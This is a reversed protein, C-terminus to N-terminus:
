PSPVVSDNSAHPKRADYEDTSVSRLYTSFCAGIGGFVMLSVGAAHVPLRNNGTCAEEICIAGGIIAVLASLLFAGRYKNSDALLLPLCSQNQLKRARILRRGLEYDGENPRMDCEFATIAHHDQGSVALFEDDESAANISRDEPMASSRSEDDEPAAYISREEPIVSLRSEDDLLSENLSSNHDKGM